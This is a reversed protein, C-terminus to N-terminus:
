MFFEVIVMSFEFKRLLEAPHPPPIKQPSLELKDSLFTETIFLEAPLTPPIYKSLELEIRVLTVIAFM